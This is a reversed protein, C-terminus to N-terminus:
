SAVTPLLVDQKGFYNESLDLSGVGDVSGTGWATLDVWEKRASGVVRRGVSLRGM